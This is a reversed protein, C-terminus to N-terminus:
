EEEEEEEKVDEEARKKHKKSKREEKKEEQTMEEGRKRKSKKKDMEDSDAPASSNEEKEEGKEDGEKKKKEEFVDGPAWELYLPQTRFRAYALKSFAAKADVSNGFVILASVGAEPPILVNRLDGFKEFMRHLEEKEVGSPLNKALIVTDSRKTAPRSFADLSVGNNILFERTERVIRTEALALRVAASEGGGETSLIDAKSVGLKEALSDAVANAGLFLSNWSHQNKAANKKMKEAKERKFSSKEDMRKKKGENTGDGGEEGEEEEREERKEEGPLIHLMRGKFVSGDLKAYAAVASEPFMFEVIAFGKCAGTSKTIIVQVEALEGFPKMLARLEAEDTSFPLNRLFLRGTDLIADRMKAEEEERTLGPNALGGKGGGGEENKMENPNVSGPVAKVSIKYGGLFLNNKLLARKIDGTKEFSVFSAAAKQDRVVKLAKVRIPAFWDKVHNQKISSPLGSVLVSLHTDGKINELLMNILGEDIASEEKPEEVPKVEHEKSVGKAELFNRFEEDRRAKTKKNTASEEEDEDEDKKPKKQVAAPAEDGHKRKYASSDKAYKSWARPKQNDGFGKCEEVQLKYSGLFTDNTKNIADKGSDGGEFGVFAFRRFKGEKTFKLACDTITGYSRFIDKLQNESCRPPLGKVIIRSM